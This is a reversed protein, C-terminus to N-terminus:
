AWPSPAEGAAQRLVEGCIWRRFARLAPPPAPTLLGDLDALRSAAALNDDLLAVHPVSGAPILLVVEDAPAANASPSRDRHDPPVPAPVQEAFLALADSSAAHELVQEGDTDEMRALLYERLLAQAHRQWAAHLGLPLRQLRITVVGPEAGPVGMAASVESTEVRMAHRRPSGEEATTLEFWVSKGPPRRDVGWEAVLQEVMRLGNGTEAVV